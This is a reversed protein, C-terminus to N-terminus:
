DTREDGAQDRQPADVLPNGDFVSGQMPHVDRAKRADALLREVAAVADTDLMPEIAVFRVVTKHSGGDAHDITTRVPEVLGVVYHREHTRTELTAAIAELGNDERQDKKFTGAINVTM